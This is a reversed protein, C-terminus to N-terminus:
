WVVVYAGDRCMCSFTNIYQVGGMTDRRYKWPPPPLRRVTLQQLQEYLVTAGPVVGSLLM